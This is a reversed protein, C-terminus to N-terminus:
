TEPHVRKKMAFLPTHFLQSPGDESRLFGAREYLQIAADLFPTTSLLMAEFGGALAFDEAARLLATALGQGRASPLVGMGRIYLTRGRPLASVTGALGGGRFAVWVPGEALRLCVQDAKIATAAFARETYLPKYEIFAAYLLSAIAEADFEDALRIEVSPPM